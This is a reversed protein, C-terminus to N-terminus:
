SPKAKESLAARGGGTPGPSRRQPQPPRRKAPPTKAKPTAEDQPPAKPKLSVTAGASTHGHDEVAYFVVGRDEIAGVALTM